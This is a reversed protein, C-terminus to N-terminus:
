RASHCWPSASFCSIGPSLARDTPASRYSTRRYRVQALHPTLWCALRDTETENAASYLIACHLAAPLRPPAHWHLSAVCRPAPLPPSALTGTRAPSRARPAAVDTAFREKASVPEGTYRRFRLRSTQTPRTSMRKAKEPRRAEGTCVCLPGTRIAVMASIGVLAVRSVHARLAAM